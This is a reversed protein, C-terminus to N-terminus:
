GDVTYLTPPTSWSPYAGVFTHTASRGVVIAGGALRLSGVPKTGDPTLESLYGHGIYGDVQSVAYAHGTRPDVTLDTVDGTIAAGNSPDQGDHSVVVSSFGAGYVLHRVPDVAVKTMTTGTEIAQLNTGSPSVRFITLDTNAVLTQGTSTDVAVDTAPMQLWDSFVTSRERHLTRSDFAIVRADFTTAVVRHRVPDVAVYGLLDSQAATRSVAGTSPDVRYLREDSIGTAYVMGTRDDVAVDQAGFDGIRAVQRVVAGTSPSIEVIGHSTAGYVAGTGSTIATVTQRLPHTRTVVLPGPHPRQASSGDVPATPTGAAPAADTAAM